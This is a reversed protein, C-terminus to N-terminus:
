QQYQKNQKKWDPGPFTPPVFELDPFYSWIMRKLKIYVEEQLMASPCFNGFLELDIGLLSVNWLNILIYM